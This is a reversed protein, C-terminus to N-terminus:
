KVDEEVAPNDQEVLRMKVLMERMAELQKRSETVEDFSRYRSITDELREIAQEVQAKTLVVPTPQEALAENIVINSTENKPM